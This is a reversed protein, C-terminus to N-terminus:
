AVQKFRVPRVAFLAEAFRDAISQEESKQRELDHMISSFENYKTCLEKKLRRDEKVLVELRKVVEDHEAQKATLATKSFDSPQDKLLLVVGVRYFMAEEKFRCAKLVSDVAEDESMSPAFEYEVSELIEGDALNEEERDYLLNNKTSNVIHELQFYYNSEFDLGHFFNRLYTNTKKNLGLQGSDETRKFKEMFKQLEDFSKKRTSIQESVQNCKSANLSTAITLRCLDMSSKFETEDCRISLNWSPTEMFGCLEIEEDFCVKSIAELFQRSEDTLSGFLRDLESAWEKHGYDTMSNEEVSLVFRRQGGLQVEVLDVITGVRRAM